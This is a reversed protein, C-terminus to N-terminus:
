GRDVLVWEGENKAGEILKQERDAGRYTLIADTNQAFAAPALWCTAAVIILLMKASRALVNEARPPAPSAIAAPM